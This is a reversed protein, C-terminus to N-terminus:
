ATRTTWNTTLSALNFKGYCRSTTDLTSCSRLYAIWFSLADRVSGRGAAVGLAYDHPGYDLAAGGMLNIDCTEAALIDGIPYDVVFAGCAGSRLAPVYNAYSVMSTNLAPMNLQLWSSFAAGILTCAPGREGLRQAAIYEAFTSSSGIQFLSLGAKGDFSRTM